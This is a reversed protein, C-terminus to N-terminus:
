SRQGTEFERMAQAFANYKSVPITDNPGIGIKGSIYKIYNNVAVEDNDGGRSKPPAYKFVVEQPTDLGKGFYNKKLLNVQANIGNEITDFQAFRGDSGTYGPQSKAFSGNELNGPNNNAGKKYTGSVGTSTKEGSTPSSFSQPASTAMGTIEADLKDVAKM